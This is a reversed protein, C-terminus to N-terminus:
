TSHSRRNSPIGCNLDYFSLGARSEGETAGREQCSRLDANCEIIAFLLFTEKDIPMRRRQVFYNTARPRKGLSSGLSFLRKPCTMPDVEYIIWRRGSPV